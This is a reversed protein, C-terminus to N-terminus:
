FLELVTEPPRGVRAARGRVVIPREMLIPHAVMADLIAAGESSEDLGADRCAKEGRRLWEGPPRALRTELESLEDRTLPAELYHRQEFEVGREQLLALTARSKSCGPNHLLLVQNENEPLSM